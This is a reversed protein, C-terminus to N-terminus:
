SDRRPTPSPSELPQQVVDSLIRAIRQLPARAGDPDPPAPPRGPAKPGACPNVAAPAATGKVLGEAEDFALRMAVSAKGDRQAIVFDVLNYYRWIAELFRAATAARAEAPAARDALQRDAEVALDRALAAFFVALAREAVDGRGEVLAARLAGELGAPLRAARARMERRVAGEEFLRRAVDFKRAQIAFKLQKFNASVPNDRPTYAGVHHASAPSPGPAVALATALAAAAVLHLGPGGRV